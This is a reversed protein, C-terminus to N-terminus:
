CSKPADALELQQAAFDADALEKKALRIYQLLPRRGPCHYGCLGCELCANVDYQRAREFLCFEASRSIMNPLIRAPCYLVCEGCNLCPNDQVPPYAGHPIIQIAQSDRTIGQALDVAAEGCMLGGIIVRDRDSPKLGAQDLLDGLCTGIKACINENNVTLITETVPLGTEMVQGLLFLELVSIIATNKTTERGTIAKIVLPDMGGPHVAPLHKVACNGLSAADASISALIIQSPEIIRKAAELGKSITPRHDSLLQEHVLIGPQPPMANIILTKARPLRNANIGLEALATKLDAKSLQALSLPEVSEDGEAKILMSFENLGVVDEITGCVPSHLDGHGAISAQAVKTGVMVADGPALLPEYGALALSVQSPTPGNKVPGSLDINLKFDSKAM